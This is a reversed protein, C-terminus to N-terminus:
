KTGGGRRLTESQEARAPRSVSSKSVRVRTEKSVARWLTTTTTALIEALEKMTKENKFNDWVCQYVKNRWFLKAGKFRKQKM